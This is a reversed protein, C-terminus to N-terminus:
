VEYHAGVIAAPTWPEEQRMKLYHKTQVSFCLSVAVITLSDPVISCELPVQQAPITGPTFPTDFQFQFCHTPYPKDITTGTIAVRWHLTKTHAPARMDTQTDIAPMQLMAMKPNSWDVTIPLRVRAHLEIRPNFQLQILRQWAPEKRSTESSGPKGARIWQLVANDIRYRVRHDGSYAPFDKLGWRLRKAVRAAIGFVKASEKTAKTQRVRGPMARCCAQGRFDYVIVNGIRGYSPSATIRAM